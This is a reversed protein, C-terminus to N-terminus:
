AERLIEQRKTEFEAQTILGADLASKLDKLRVIASAPGAMGGQQGPYWGQTGQIYTPTALSAAKRSRGAVIVLALGILFPVLFGGVGYLWAMGNVDRSQGRTNVCSFDATYGTGQEDHSIIQTSTLAEGSQCLIPQLISKLVPAQDISRYFSPIVIFLFLVAFGLVILVIGILVSLLKM